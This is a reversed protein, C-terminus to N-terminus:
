GRHNQALRYKVYFKREMRQLFRQRRDQRDWRDFTEMLAEEDYRM